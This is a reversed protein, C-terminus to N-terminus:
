AERKQCLGMLMRFLHPAESQCQLGQKQIPLFLINAIEALANLLDFGTSGNGEGGWKSKSKSYNTLSSWPEMRRLRGTWSVSLLSLCGQMIGPGM